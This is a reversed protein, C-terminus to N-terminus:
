GNEDDESELYSNLEKLTRYLYYKVNSESIELERAIEKITLEMKFYLFFIKSVVVKKKKLFEWVYEADYKAMIAEEIDIDGQIADILELDEKESFLSVIKNKYHLRYYDKVKHNAIGIIYAKTIEKKHILKKYVELYVNQIIDQVDEINSCKCVIYKLIDNYTEDYLKNFKKLTGQDIM